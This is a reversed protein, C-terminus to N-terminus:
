CVGGVVSDRKTGAAAQTGWGVDRRDRTGVEVQRM